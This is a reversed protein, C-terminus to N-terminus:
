PQLQTRVAEEPVAFRLLDAMTFTDPAASPLEPKWTPEVSLYSLPDGDLIGLLTEAVITGGVAGLREGDHLLEAEKLVYFWLPCPRKFGLDDRSVQENKPIGLANAVRHGSPLQLARGRLLNRRALSREDDPSGAVDFEPQPLDFLAGTLKSDIKLTVQPAEDDLDFFFPWQVTWFRPLPRFGRFDQIRTELPRGTFTATRVINNIAYGGRVQSHGFRYAAVSFEVPMFPDGKPHYFRLHVREGGRPTSQLLEAMLEAGVLRPLFDHAVVWQYHWRALRQAEKFLESGSLDEDREAVHDILRNHFKLFALQLQSLFTNEDNRPDGILARGQRNRPLDDGAGNGEAITGDDDTIRGLLLKYGRKREDQEDDPQPPRAVGSPPGQNYLYPDDDPGRGYVCDLDFRPTRFTVLADPDFFRELTSATDLTLDHDVFQGLYTFGAAILPNDQGRGEERMNDALDRLFAPSQEFIPINPFMRGFRGEFQPADLGRPKRGHFQSM